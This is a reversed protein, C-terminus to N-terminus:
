TSIQSMGAIIIAPPAVSAPRPEDRPQPRRAPMELTERASHARTYYAPDITDIGSNPILESAHTSIQRRLLSRSSYASHFATSLSRQRSLSQLV